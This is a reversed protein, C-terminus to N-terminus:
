YDLKCKQWISKEGNFIFYVYGHSSSNHVHECYQVPYLLNIEHYTKLFVFMITAFVRDFFIQVHKWINILVRSHLINVPQHYSNNLLVDCLIKITIQWFFIFVFCFELIRTISWNAAFMSFLSKFILFFFLTEDIWWKVRSSEFSLEM